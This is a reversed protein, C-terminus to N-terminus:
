LSQVEQLRDGANGDDWIRLSLYELQRLMWVCYLTQAFAIRGNRGPWRSHDWHEYARFLLEIADLQHSRRELMVAEFGDAVHASALQGMLPLFTRPLGPSDFFCSGLVQEFQARHRSHSTAKGQVNLLRKEIDEVILSRRDLWASLLSVHESFSVFM